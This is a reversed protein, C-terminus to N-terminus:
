TKEPTLKNTSFLIILIFHLNLGTRGAQKDGAKRNAGGNSDCSKFRFYDGYHGAAGSFLNYGFGLSNKTGKQSELCITFSQLSSQHGRKESSGCSKESSYNKTNSQSLACDRNLHCQRLKMSQVTHHQEAGSKWIWDCFCPVVLYAMTKHGWYHVSPYKSIYSAEACALDYNLEMDQHKSYFYAHSILM